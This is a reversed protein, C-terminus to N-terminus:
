RMHNIEKAELLKKLKAFNEKFQNKAVRAVVPDVVKFFGGPSIQSSVEVATGHDVAVFKYSTKLQIPGFLTKYGFFKNSAFETVQFTSQIRRGMFHGLSSFVTGTKVRGETIQVSELSGYQWQNNNEPAAIFDFVEWIPRLILTSVNIFIM